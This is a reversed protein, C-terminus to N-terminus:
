DAQRAPAAEIGPAPRLWGPEARARVLLAAWAGAVLLISAYGDVAYHYGSTVSIVLMAGVFAVGLPMLWISREALYLAFLMAVAVHVSPFASMGGGIAINDVYGRWLFDQTHGFGSEPFGAAAHAAVLGAFRDGGILRDYFIPGVSAAATALLQGLVIWCFLFLILYRRRRVASSDVVALLVPFTIALTSWLVIYIDVSLGVGLIPAGDDRYLLTWPDVGGHLWRDLDALPADAYYPIVHPILSRTFSFGLQLLVAGAAVYSLQRWHSATKRVGIWLIVLVLPILMRQLSFWLVAGLGIAQQVAYVLYWTDFDYRVLTVFVQLTAYGLCVVFFWRGPM